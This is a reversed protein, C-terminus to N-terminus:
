FLLGILFGTMVLVIAPLPYESFIAFLPKNKVPSVTATAAPAPRPLQFDEVFALAKQLEARTASELHHQGLERLGYRALENTIGKQSALLTIRKILHKRAAAENFERRYAELANVAAEFQDRCIDNISEVGLTAHVVDRWLKPGPVSCEQAIEAVLINLQKRQASVLLERAKDPLKVEIYDRGAVRNGKGDVEVANGQM